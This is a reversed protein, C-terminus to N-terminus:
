RRRSLLALGGILLLSLTTPEPTTQIVNIQFEHYETPDYASDLIVRIQDVDSFDLTGGTPVFDDFPFEFLGPGLVEYQFEQSTAMQATGMGTVVTMVLWDAPLSPAM